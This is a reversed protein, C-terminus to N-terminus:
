GLPLGTLAFDFRANQRRHRGAFGETTKTDFATMGLLTAVLFRSQKKVRGGKKGQKGQPESPSKRTGWGKQLTPGAKTNGLAGATTAAGQPKRARKDENDNPPAYSRPIQKKKEGKVYRRAEARCGERERLVESTGAGAEM